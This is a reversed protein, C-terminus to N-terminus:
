WLLSGSRKALNCKDAFEFFIGDRAWTGRRFCDKGAAAGTNLSALTSKSTLAASLRDDLSISLQPIDGGGSGATVVKGATVSISSELLDRCALDIDEALLLLLSPIGNLGCLASNIWINGGMSDNM